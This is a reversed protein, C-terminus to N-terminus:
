ASVEEVEKKDEEMDSAAARSAKFWSLGTGLVLFASVILMPIMLDKAVGAERCLSRLRDGLHPDVTFDSIWCNWTDPTLPYPSQYQVTKGNAGSLSPPLPLSNRFKIAWQM